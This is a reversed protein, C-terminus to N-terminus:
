TLRTASLRINADAKIIRFRSVAGFDARRLGKAAAQFYEKTGAVRRYEEAQEWSISALWRRPKSSEDTFGRRRRLSPVISRRAGRLGSPSPQQWRAVPEARVRGRLARAPFCRKERLRFCFTRRTAKCTGEKSWCRGFALSACLGALRGPM